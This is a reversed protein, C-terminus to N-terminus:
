YISTTNKDNRVRKLRPFRLAYVNGSRATKDQSASFYAVEVIKGQIDEPYNAWHMRQENSLGSGVRCKYVKGTAKLYAECMLAGVKGKHKGTGEFLETVLMDMTYVEKVKLLADTRKREYPRDGINIMLGEGGVSVIDALHEMINEELAQKSEYCAIVPLIYVNRKEITTSVYQDLEASFLDMVSRRYRYSEEGLSPIDFIMYVLDSKNGYKSNVVGSLENFAAQGRDKSLQRYSVIEGDFTHCTPLNGMDFNVRMEKGSRSWFTWCQREFDYKSLCRNGDLKETIYYGYHSKPLKDADYKKGLM